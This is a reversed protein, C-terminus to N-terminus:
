SNRRIWSVRRTTMWTSSAMRSKTSTPSPSKSSVQRTAARIEKGNEVYLGIPSLDDAYMGGNMAFSLTLGEGALRTQLSSFTGHPSGDQGAWFMRLDAEALNFSCVTYDTGEFTEPRCAAAAGSQSSVVLVAATAFLRIPDLM